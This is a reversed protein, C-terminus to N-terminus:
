AEEDVVWVGSETRKLGRILYAFHSERYGKIPAGIRREVMDAADARNVNDMRENYSGNGTSWYIGFQKGITYLFRDVHLGELRGDMFVQSLRSVTNIGLAKSLDDHFM